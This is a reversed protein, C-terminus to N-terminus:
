QVCFSGSTKLWSNGVSWVILSSRVMRRSVSEIRKVPPSGSSRASTSSRTCAALRSMLNRETSSTVLPVSSCLRCRSNSDSSPRM